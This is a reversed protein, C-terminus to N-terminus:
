LLLSRLYERMTPDAWDTPGVIKKVMKQQRNLIFTEPFRLVGFNKQSIESGKDWVLHINRNQFQQQEKQSFLRIFKEIEKQNIDNSVAILALKGDSSEVLDLMSPFEEFCPGCWSAWFNLLVIKGSFDNLAIETGDTKTFTVDPAEQPVFTAIEEDPRSFGFDVIGSFHLGLIFIASFLLFIFIRIM